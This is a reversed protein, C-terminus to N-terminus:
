TVTTNDFFKFFPLQAKYFRKPRTKDKKKKKECYFRIIRWGEFYRLIGLCRTTTAIYFALIIQLKNTIRCKDKTYKFM